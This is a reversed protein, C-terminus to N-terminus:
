GGPQCVAGPTQSMMEALDGLHLGRAAVVRKGQRTFWGDALEDEDVYPPTLWWADSTSYHIPRLFDEYNSPLWGEPRVEEDFAPAAFPRIFRGYRDRVVQYDLDVLGYGGDDGERLLLLFHDIQPNFSTHMAAAVRLRSGEAQGILVREAEFELRWPWRIVIVDPGSDPFPDPTQAVVRAVVALDFCPWPEAVQASAIWPTGALLFGILLAKM